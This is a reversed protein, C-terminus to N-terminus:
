CCVLSSELSLEEGELRHTPLVRREPVSRQIKAGADLDNTDSTALQMRNADDDQEGLGEAVRVTM